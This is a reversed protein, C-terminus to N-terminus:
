LSVKTTLSLIQFDGNARHLVIRADTCHFSLLPSEHIIHISYLIESTLPIYFTIKGHSTGAVLLSISPSTNRRGKSSIMWTILQFHVIDQDSFRTRHLLVHELSSVFSSNVHQQLSSSRPSATTANHSLLQYKRQLLLGMQHQIQYEEDLCKKLDISAYICSM